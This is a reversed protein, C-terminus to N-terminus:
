RDGHLLANASFKGTSKIWRYGPYYWGEGASRMPKGSLRIYTKGLPIVDGRNLRSPDSTLTITTPPIPTM